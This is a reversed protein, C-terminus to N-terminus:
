ACVPRNTHPDTSDESNASVTVQQKAITAHAQDGALALASGVIVNPKEFPAFGATVKVTYRAAPLNEFLFV